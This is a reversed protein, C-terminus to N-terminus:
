SRPNSLVIRYITGNLTFDLDRFNDKERPKITAGQETLFQAISNYLDQKAQPYKNNYGGPKVTRPARKLETVAALQEPTLILNDFNVDQDILFDYQRATLKGIAEEPTDGQAIWRNVKDLLVKTLEAKTLHRKPKAKEM